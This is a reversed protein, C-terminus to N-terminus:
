IGSGDRHVRNLHGLRSFLRGLGSGSQTTYSGGIQSSSARFTFYGCLMLLVIFLVATKEAADVKRVGM